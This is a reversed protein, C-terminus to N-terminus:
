NECNDLLTHVHWLCPTVRHQHTYPVYQTVRAFAHQNAFQWSYARLKVVTGIGAQTLLIVFLETYTCECFNIFSM